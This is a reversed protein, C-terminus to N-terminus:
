IDEDEDEDFEHEEAVGNRYSGRIMAFDDEWEAEVVFGLKEMKEYFIIPSSWATNFVITTSNKFFVPIDDIRVDEVDWKTGWNDWCWLILDEPEPTPIPVFENFLGTEFSGEVRRIMNDDSHTLTLTTTVWNPMKHKQTKSTYNLVRSSVSCSNKLVGM